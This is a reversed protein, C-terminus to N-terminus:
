RQCSPCHYTSRGGQEFRRIGRRCVECPQGERDYVQLPFWEAEQIRGPTMYATYASEVADTLIRVVAAHLRNLRTKSLKHAPARPDIRAEFLAEAAYINGIGAIHRQDLLFIKVPQRSKAALAALASPTFGDSLPEIGVGRLVDEIEEARLLHIRGLARPDDYLLGRGGDLEFWARATPPRFRVDPVCYLNGTMRLHVHLVLGGSLQILINKGRRRVAEIRQQEIKRGIAAPRQPRVIGAREFQSRVITAGLAEGRLRRCVAEVEPLEPM